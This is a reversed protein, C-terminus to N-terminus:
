WTTGITVAGEVLAPREKKLAAHFYACIGPIDNDVWLDPDKPNFRWFLADPFLNQKMSAMVPFSEICVAWTQLAHHQWDEQEGTFVDFHRSGMRRYGVRLGEAQKQGVKLARALDGYASFDSATLVRPTIVTGMFSHLNASAHFQKEKLLRVLSSMEPESLPAEGRYTADGKQHSGTGPIWSPKKDFPLPFNRNLDVGRANQRMSPLKGVGEVEWTKAYGDPNLCPAIWLEAEQCLAEVRADKKIKRELFGHAIRNSIFEIGHINACFLIRPPTHTTASCPIRAIQLSRGEISQGYEMLEAGAQDVLRVFEDARQTPDIYPTLSM